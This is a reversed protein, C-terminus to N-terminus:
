SYAREWVDLAEAFSLIAGAFPLVLAGVMVYLPVLLPILLLAWRSEKGFDLAVKIAAPVLAIAAALLFSAFTGVFMGLSALVRGPILLVWKYTKKWDSMGYNVRSGRRGGGLLARM